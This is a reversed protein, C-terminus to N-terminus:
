RSDSNSMSTLHLTHRMWSCRSLFEQSQVVGRYAHIVAERFSSQHLRRKVTQLAYRRELSNEPYEGVMAQELATSEFVEDQLPLGFVLNASLAKANWGAVFTPIMAEYRGPAVGLFYIFPIRHELAERLWRNDAAEPNTGMFDYEVSDESEFLHRHVHRQDDYWVKRGPRPYVTRVSLLFRMRRPKFIGRQRNILPVREGAFEFGPNLENSTLFRHTQQLDQVRRFAELRILADQDAGDMM